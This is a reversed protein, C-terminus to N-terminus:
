TTRYTYFVDVQAAPSATTTQYSQFVLNSTNPTFTIELPVNANGSVTQFGALWIAWTADTAIDTDPLTLTNSYLARSYPDITVSIFSSTYGPLVSGRAGM